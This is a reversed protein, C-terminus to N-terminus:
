YMERMKCKPQLLMGRWRWAFVKKVKDLDTLEKKLGKKGNIIPYGSWKAKLFSEIFVTSQEFDM